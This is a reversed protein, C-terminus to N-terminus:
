RSARRPSPPVARRSSAMAARMASVKQLLQSTRDLVAAEDLPHLRLAAPRDAHDHVALKAGEVGHDHRLSVRTAMSASNSGGICSSHASLSRAFTWGIRSVNTLGPM